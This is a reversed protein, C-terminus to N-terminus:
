RGAIQEYYKTARLIELGRNFANILDFKDSRRTILYLPLPDVPIHSIKFNESKHAGRLYYYGVRKDILWIDAKDDELTQICDKEKEVYILKNNQDDNIEESIFYSTPICIRLQGIDKYTLDDKLHKKNSSIGVYEALAYSNSFTYTHYRHKNMFADLVGDIKGQRILLFAEAGSLYRWKISINQRKMVEKLIDISIGVPKGEQSKGSYPM